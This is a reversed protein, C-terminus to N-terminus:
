LVEKFEYKILHIHYHDAITRNKTFNIIMSDFIKEKELSDLIEELEKIEEPYLDHKDPVHRLPSLAKHVAAIKDYPFDNKLLKWFLFQKETKAVCFFCKKDKQKNWEIYRKM